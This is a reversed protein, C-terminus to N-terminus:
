VVLIILIFNKKTKLVNILNNLIFNYYYGLDTNNFKDTYFIKSSNVYIENM